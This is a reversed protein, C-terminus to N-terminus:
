SGGTDPGGCCCPGGAAHTFLGLEFKLFIESDYLLTLPHFDISIFDAKRIKNKEERHEGDQRLHRRL